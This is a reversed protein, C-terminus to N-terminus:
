SDDKGHGNENITGDENFKPYMQLCFRMSDSGKLMSGYDTLNLEFHGTIIKVLTDEEDKKPGPVLGFLKSSPVLDTSWTFNLYDDVVITSNNTTLDNVILETDTEEASSFGLLGLALVKLM